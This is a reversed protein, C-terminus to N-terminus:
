CGRKEGRRVEILQETTYAAIFAEVDRADLMGDGNMDACPDAQQIWSLFLAFDESTLWGDDNVDARLADDVIMYKMSWEGFMPKGRQSEILETSRRERDSVGAREARAVMVVHSRAEAFPDVDSASETAPSEGRVDRPVDGGDLAGGRAPEGVTGVMWGGAAATMVLLLM